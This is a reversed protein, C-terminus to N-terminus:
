TKRFLTTDPALPRYGNAYPTFRVTESSGLGLVGGTSVSEYLVRHARTALRENFYILVNRCLVVDFLSFPGDSALDHRSFVIKERLDRRIIARDYAAVYYESFTGAGGAELYNQTFERVAALPFVGRRAHRLVRLSVDTAYITSRPMLGAEHLLVALSYVEEGTSCGAHWIRISQRGALDPLVHQRLADYFHPDRFMTTVHVTVSRVFREMCEPDALLRQQYLGVAAFGEDRMCNMVRRVIFSRAYDRLDVRYRAHVAELLQAVHGDSSGLTPSHPDRM